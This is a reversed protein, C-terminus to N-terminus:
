SILTTQKLYYVSPTGEVDFVRAIIHIDNSELSDLDVHKWEKTEFILPYAKSQELKGITSKVEIYITQDPLNIRFDYDHSTTKLHYHKGNMEVTRDGKEDDKCLNSWIIEEKTYKGLIQQYVFAEGEDGIALNREKKLEDMITPNLEFDGSADKLIELLKSFDYNPFESIILKLSDFGRIGCIKEIEEISINKQIIEAVIGKNNIIEELEDQSFTSYLRQLRKREDPTYILDMAINNRENYTIPFYNGNEVNGNNEDFYSFLKEALPKLLDCHTKDKYNKDIMYDVHGSLKAFLGKQAKLGCIEPHIINDILSHDYDKWDSWLTCKALDNELIDILINNQEHKKICTSDYLTESRYTVFKEHYNPVIKKNEYSIKKTDLYSYFRNLWKFVFDKDEKSVVVDEKNESDCDDKSERFKIAMERVNEFSEIQAILYNSIYLTAGSWLSADTTSIYTIIYSMCEIEGYLERLQAINTDSMVPNNLYLIYQAAKILQPSNYTEDNNFSKNISSVVSSLEEKTPYNNGDTFLFNQHILRGKLDVGIREIDVSLLEEPIVGIGRLDTYACFIGKRNPILFKGEKSLDSISIYKNDLMFNVVDSLWEVTCYHYEQEDEEKDVANDLQGKEAIKSVLLQAFWENTKEWAKFHVDLTQNGYTSLKNCEKRFATEIFGLLTKYKTKNIESIETNPTRKFLLFLKSFIQEQKSNEDIYNQKMVEEIIAASRKNIEDSVKESTLVNSFIVGEVEKNVLSDSWDIGYSKM